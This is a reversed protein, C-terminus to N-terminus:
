SRLTADRQYREFLREALSAIYTRGKPGDELRDLLHRPVADTGNLAGCVGGAIAAVTDTDDGLAIASSVVALYDHPTAAFCAIATVVSRDAPLSSGFMGVPDAPTWTAARDLQFRFEDTRARAILNDFFSRRDFRGDGVALAVALAVLQAGEVGIPHLHTPRASLAAQEAVRGLDDHFLLGVPAARMAAGNGLSGGPFITAALKRWDGGDAMAEIIRRAGQGYGRGPEYNAVFADCLTAEDAQGAALLAEAVAITMQTDDTYALEDVPPHEVIQRAGGLDYWIATAPMGEVPAGTADGVAHGLLCGLFRDRKASSAAAM